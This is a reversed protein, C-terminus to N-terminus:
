VYIGTHTHVYIIVHMNIYDICTHTFVYNTYIKIRIHVYM